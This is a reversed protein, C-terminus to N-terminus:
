TSVIITFAIANNLMHLPITAYISGTEEYVWCLLFGLFALPPVVALSGASAHIAGFLLASPVAAVLFSYRHRFGGFVFGRFFTEEAVPAALVILIGAIIAGLVGHGFGLDGTIDRQHPHVLAGYAIAAVLYAVYASAAIFWPRRLPRRLGLSAATAMGPFGHDAAVAFAVGIFTAELLVQTVIKGGLTDLGPDFISVIGVELVSLVIVVLIGVFVRGPGWTAAVTPPGDATDRHPPPASGGATPVTPPPEAVGGVGPADPLDNPAMLVVTNALRDGLRQRRRSAAILLPGVAFDVVLLLSRVLARTWPLREGPEAVVRISMARMGLTQGFRWQACVFYVLWLTATALVIAAALVTEATTAHDSAVGPDLLTIAISYAAWGLALDLLIAVARRVLGAYAPAETSPGAAIV